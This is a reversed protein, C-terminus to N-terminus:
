KAAEATAHKAADTGAYEKALKRLAEKALAKDPGTLAAEIKADGARSIEELAKGATEVEAKLLRSDIKQIKLLRQIAAAVNGRAHELLALSVEARVGPATTRFVKVLEDFYETGAEPSVACALEGKKFVSETLENLTKSAEASEKYGNKASLCVDVLLKLGKEEDTKLV